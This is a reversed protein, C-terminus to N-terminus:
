HTPPHHKSTLLQQLVAKKKQDDVDPISQQSQLLLSLGNLSPFSPNQVKTSPTTTVYSSFSMSTPKFSVRPQPPPTFSPTLSLHLLLYSSRTQQQVETSPLSHPAMNGIWMM